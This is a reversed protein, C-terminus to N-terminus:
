RAAALDRGAVREQLSDPLASRGAHEMHDRVAEACVFSASLQPATSLPRVIVTFSRTSTGQPSHSDRVRVTILNTTAAQATTPTWSFAGGSTIAAGTPAGPELSFTLTQAPLDADTATVTVNVSTGSNVTQDLISSIVPATNAEAVTVNFPVTVSGSAGDSVVVSPTFNGPGQAETPTWSIVGASSISMGIPANQLTYGLTQAPVDSDTATVTISLLSGENVDSDAIPQASPNANVENASLQFSNTARMVPSGNDSVIVSVTTASPAQTETPTWTFVGDPSIASGNPAGQLAYTLTQGADPDSAVVTFQLLSGEAVMKATITQIQPANNTQTAVNAASPTPAMLSRDDVQGNPFAGYSANAALASFNLYDVVAAEGNQMRVLAISGSSNIRFNTHLENGITEDAEGDLWIIRYEGPALTAGAPFAWRTLNAYSDTLYLGELSVALHRHQAIGDM